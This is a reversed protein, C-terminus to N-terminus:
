PSARTRRTGRRGCRRRTAPPRAARWCAVPQRRRERPQRRAQQPATTLLAGLGWHRVRPQPWARSSSRHLAHLPIAKAPEPELSQHMLPASLQHSGQPVSMQYSFSRWHRLSATDVTSCGRVGCHHRCRLTGLASSSSAYRMQLGMTQPSAPDGIAMLASLHRSSHSRSKHQSGSM